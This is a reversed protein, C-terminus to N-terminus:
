NWTYLMIVCCKYIDSNRSHCLPIVTMMEAAGPHLNLGWGPDKPELVWHQWLQPKPWLQSKSRIGPGPVGYAAPHSFFSFLFIHNYIIYILIFYINNINIIFIYYINIKFIFISININFIYYIYMYWLNIYKYHIPWWM